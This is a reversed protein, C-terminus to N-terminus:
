ECLDSKSFIEHALALEFAIEAVDPYEAFATCMQKASLDPFPHPVQALHPKVVNDMLSKCELTIQLDAKIEDYSDALESCIEDTDRRFFGVLNDLATIIDDKYETMFEECDRPQQGEPCIGIAHGICITALIVFRLQVVTNMRSRFYSCM